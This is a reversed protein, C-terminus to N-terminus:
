DKLNNKSFAGGISTPRKKNDKIKIISSKFAGFLFHIIFM